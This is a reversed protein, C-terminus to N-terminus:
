GDYLDRVVARAIVVGAAGALGQLLRLATLAGVSPAVACGISAATYVVGGALLPRRRGWRDSLPGVILQGLALGTLAATLTLQVGSDSASLDRAIEPFASLYTDVTFPGLATLGGLLLILVAAARGRPAATVTAPSRVATPAPSM